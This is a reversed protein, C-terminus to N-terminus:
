KWIFVAYSMLYHSQLESTHEELRSETRIDSIAIKDRNTYEKKNKKIVIYEELIKYTNSDLGYIKSLDKPTYFHGGKNRYKIINNIVHNNLGLNVFTFSDALNPDFKIYKPTVLSTKIDKNRIMYIFSDCAAIQKPDIEVTNSSNDFDVIYNILIIAILLILLISIARKENRSYYFFTKLLGM